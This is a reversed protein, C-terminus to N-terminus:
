SLFIVDLTSSSPSHHNPQIPFFSFLLRRSSHIQAILLAMFECLLPSSRCPSGTGLVHRVGIGWVHAEVDMATGEGLFGGLIDVVTLFFIVPFTHLFQGSQSTHVHTHTHTRRRGFRRRMAFFLSYAQLPLFFFYITIFQVIATEKKKTEQNETKKIHFALALAPLTHPLLTRTHPNPWVLCLTDRVQVLHWHPPFCAHTRFYFIM